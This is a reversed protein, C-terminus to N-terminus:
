KKQKSKNQYLIYGLVYLIILLFCISSLITDAIMSEFGLYSQVFYYYIIPIIILIAIILIATKLEFLKM